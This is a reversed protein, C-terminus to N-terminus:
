KKGIEQKVKEYTEKLQAEDPIYQFKISELLDFGCEKLADEV